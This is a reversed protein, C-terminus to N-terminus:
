SPAPKTRYVVYLKGLISYQCATLFSFQRWYDACAESSKQEAWDAHNHMGNPRRGIACSAGATTAHSWDRAFPGEIHNGGRAVRQVM